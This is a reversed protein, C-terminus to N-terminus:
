LKRRKSGTSQKTQFEKVESALCFIKCSVNPWVLRNLYFIMHFYPDLFCLILM